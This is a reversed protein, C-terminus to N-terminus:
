RAHAPSRAYGLASGVTVGLSLYLVVYAFKILVQAAIPGVGLYYGQLVFMFLLVCTLCIALSVIAVYGSVRSHRKTCHYALVGGLLALMMSPMWWDNIIRPNLPVLQIAWKETAPGAGVLASLIYNLWDEPLRLSPKGSASDVETSMEIGM